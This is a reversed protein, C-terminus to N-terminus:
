NKLVFVNELFLNDFASDIKVTKFLEGSKTQVHSIRGVLLSGPLGDLGSTVVAQGEKVEEQSTILELFMGQEMGGRTRGTIASDVIKVNITVRPDNILYILANRPFVERVIGLLIDGGFIVPQRVKLGNDAGQDIFATRNPGDVNFHFIRAMILAYGKKKAVGLEERLFENERALENIKLNAAKLQRNEELLDRNEQMINEVKFLGVMKVRANGIYHYGSALPRDLVNLFMRRLGQHTLYNAAILIIIM